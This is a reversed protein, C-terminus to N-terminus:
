FYLVDDNKNKKRKARDKFLFLESIMILLIEYAQKIDKDSYEVIGNHLINNRFPIRKDITEKFKRTDAFVIKAIGFMVIVSFSYSGMELDDKTLKRIDNKVGHITKPVKSLEYLLKEFHILVIELKERINIKKDNIINKIYKDTKSQVNYTRIYNLAARKTKYDFNALNDKLLHM